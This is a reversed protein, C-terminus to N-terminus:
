RYLALPAGALKNNNIGTTNYSGNYESVLLIIIIPGTESATSVNTEASMNCFECQMCGKKFVSIVSDLHSLCNQMFNLIELNKQHKSCEAKLGM